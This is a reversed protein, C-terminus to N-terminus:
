PFSAASGQHGQAPSLLEWVSPAWCRCTHLGSLIALMQGSRLFASARHGLPMGSVHSPGEHCSADGTRVPEPCVSHMVSGTVLVM